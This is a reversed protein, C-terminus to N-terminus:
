IANEKGERSPWLGSEIAPWPVVKRVAAAKSRPDSRQAAKSAEIFTAADLNSYRILWLLMEAENIHNYAFGATRDGPNKRSYAGPTHYENLWRIWHERQNPYGGATVAPGPPLARIARIFKAVSVMSAM